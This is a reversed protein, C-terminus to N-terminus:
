NLLALSPQLVLHKSPPWGGFMADHAVRFTMAYVNKVENIDVFPIMNVILPCLIKLDRPM